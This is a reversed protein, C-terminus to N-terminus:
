RMYQLAELGMMNVKGKAPVPPPGMGATRQNENHRDYNRFRGGYSVPEGRPTPDFREGYRTSNQPQHIPEAPGYTDQPLAFDYPPSEEQFRSAEIIQRMRSLYGDRCMPCQPNRTTKLIKSMCGAHLHHTCGLRILEPSSDGCMPIACRPTTPTIPISPEAAWKPVDTLQETPVDTSQETDEWLDEDSKYPSDTIEDTM